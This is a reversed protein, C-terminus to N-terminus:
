AEFGEEGDKVIEVVIRFARWRQTEAQEEELERGEVCAAVLV